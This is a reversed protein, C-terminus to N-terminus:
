ALRVIMAETWGQHGVGDEAFLEGARALFRGTTERLEDETACDFEVNCAMGDTDSRPAGPRAIEDVTAAGAARLDSPSVKSRVHGQATAFRVLMCAVLRGNADGAPLPEPPLGASILLAQRVLDFGFRRRFLRSLHGGVRLNIEIIEPGASGLKVESHTVGDDIGLAHHAAIVLKEIRRRLESSLRCPLVNGTTVIERDRPFMPFKGVVAIVDHRGAVTQVEVSVYDAAWSEDASPDTPIFQEAYHPSGLPWSNKLVTVDSTNEVVTVSVGGAGRRPKVVFPFGLEATVLDLDDAGNLPRSAIATVGATVLASRQVFKDALEARRCRIGLHDGIMATLELESDAFTVVGALPSGPVDLNHEDVDVPEGFLQATVTALGPSRERVGSRLLPVIKIDDRAAILVDRVPAASRPSILVGVRATM